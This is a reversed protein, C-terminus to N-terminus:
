DPLMLSAAELNRVCYGAQLECTMDDAVRHCGVCTACYADYRRLEEEIHDTSAADDRETSAPLPTKANM